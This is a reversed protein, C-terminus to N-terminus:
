SMKVSQRLKVALFHPHLQWFQMWEISTWRFELIRYKPQPTGRPFFFSCNLGGDVSVYKCEDCAPGSWGSTCSCKNSGVCTGHVCVPDCAVPVKQGQSQPHSQFQFQGESQSQSQSQFQGLSSPISPIRRFTVMPLLNTKKECAFLIV